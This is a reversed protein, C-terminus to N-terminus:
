PLHASARLQRSRARARHGPRQGELRGSAGRGDEPHPAWRVTMGKPMHRDLDESNIQEPEIFRLERDDRFPDLADARREAFEAWELMTSGDVDPMETAHARVAEAYARLEEAARRNAVQQLVRTQNLETLYRERARPVAREWREQLRRAADAVEERDRSASAARDEIFALLKSLRGILTWRKRDAWRRARYGDIPEIVLRGSPVTVPTLSVRQWPYKAAAVQEAPYEETKDREETITFDFADDEIAIRFGVVDDPRSTVVYGRREAEVALGQVIRLARDRATVSVPLRDGLEALQQVAPHTADPEDPFSSRLLRCLAVAEDETAAPALRIVLDGHDRGTHRLLMGEPVLQGAIVAHIARRYAARVSERPREVRAIGGGQDLRALLDEAQGSFRGQGTTM